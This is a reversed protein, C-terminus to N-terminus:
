QSNRIHLRTRNTLNRDESSNSQGAIHLKKFKQLAWNSQSFTFEVPTLKASM